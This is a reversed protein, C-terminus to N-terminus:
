SGSITGSAFEDSLQMEAARLVGVLTKIESTTQSHKAELMFYSFCLFLDLSNFITTLNRPTGFEFAELCRLVLM